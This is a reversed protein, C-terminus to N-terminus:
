LPRSVEVVYGDPDEVLFLERGWSVETPPTLVRGEDLGDVREHVAEVDDVGLVVVAGDGRQNGPPELGFEKLTAEDFDAEIKLACAGTDFEVSRNGREAVPLGLGNEYFRASAELDTVMLYIQPIQRAM